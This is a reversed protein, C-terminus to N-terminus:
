YITKIHEILMNINSSNLPYKDMISELFYLRGKKYTEIDYAQSFENFIGQEWKLLSDYDGEVVNMDYINFRESLNTTAKHTATDLIAQNIEIIDANNKDLCLSMFFESSKAENDKKTPDYVIDHFLATLLLKEMVKDSIKGAIFDHVIMHTLNGLHDLNHYSRQPENWMELLMDISAKVKYKDLLYSLNM